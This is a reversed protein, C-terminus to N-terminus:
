KLPPNLTLADRLREFQEKLRSREEDKDCTESPGPETGLREGALSRGIEALGNKRALCLRCLEM